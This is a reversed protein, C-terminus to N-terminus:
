DAVLVSAAPSWGAHAGASARLRARFRFTGADGADFVGSPATTGWTWRGWRGDPPKVKVDYVFGDSAPATAWRVRISRGPAATSPRAGVPVEVRANMELAHLTCTVSYTGAATFRYSVAPGGPPVIGSDFLAMGSADTVTHSREAEAFSWVVTAGRQVSVISPLFVDDLALVDVESSGGASAEVPSVLLLSIALLVSSTRRV